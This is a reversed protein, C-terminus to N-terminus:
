WTIEQMGGAVAVEPESVTQTAEFSVSDSSSVSNSICAVITQPLSKLTSVKFKDGLLKGWTNYNMTAYSSYATERDDVAIHYVDYLESVQNYLDNTLIDRDFNFQGGITEKLEKWPLYPNLPEDGLTIIIGKRGRQWCDLKCCNVGVFWAATYSEFQNGGGGAEFWVKDTHEAIRIDSEFQSAQIPASDYALDGIAMVMFEIDKFKSYLDTMIVNLSQAVRKCADGMSGTVDLALIVPITNPHEDTDCCERIKDKIDLSEDLYHKTFMNQTSSYGDSDVDRNSKISYSRFASRTWSGGGM